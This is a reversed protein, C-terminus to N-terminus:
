LIMGAFVQCALFLCLATVVPAAKGAGGSTMRANAFAFIWAMASFVACGVLALVAAEGLSASGAALPLLGFTIGGLVPVCIWCRRSGPALYAELLLAILSIGAIMPINLPPLVLWPVFTRIFVAILLVVGLVAALLMNLLYKNEKM